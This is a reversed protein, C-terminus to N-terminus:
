QDYEHWSPGGNKRIESVITETQFDEIVNLVEIACSRSDAHIESGTFRFIKIGSLQIARDRARDKAAQQPTREHFDHGDCEVAIEILHVDCLYSILFDLRM